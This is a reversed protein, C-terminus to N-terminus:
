ALDSGEVVGTKNTASGCLRGFDDRQSRMSELERELRLVDQEMRQAEDEDKAMQELAAKLAGHLRESHLAQLVTIATRGTRGPSKTGALATSLRQVESALRAKDSALTDKEKRVKLLNAALDVPRLPPVRKGGEFESLTPLMHGSRVCRNQEEADPTIATGQGPYRRPVAMLVLSLVLLIAFFLFPWVMVFPTDTILPYSSTTFGGQGVTACMIRNDVYTCTGHGAYRDLNCRFTERQFSIAQSEPDYDFQFFGTRYKSLIWVHHSDLFGATQTFGAHAM